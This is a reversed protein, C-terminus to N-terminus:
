GSPKPTEEEGLKSKLREIDEEIRNQKRWLSLIYLFLVVWVASYAAFLYSLNEM